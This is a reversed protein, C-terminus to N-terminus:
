FYKIAWHRKWEQEQFGWILCWLLGRLLLRSHGLISSTIFFPLAGRNQGNFLTQNIKILEHHCWPTGQPFRMKVKWPLPCMPTLGLSLCWLQRTVFAVSLLSEICRFTPMVRWPCIQGQRCNPALHIMGWLHRERGVWSYTKMQIYVLTHLWCTQWLTCLAGAWRSSPPM